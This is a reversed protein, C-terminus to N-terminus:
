TNRIHQKAKEYKELQYIYGIAIALYLFNLNGPHSITNCFLFACCIAWWMLRLNWSSLQFGYFGLAIFFGIFFFLGILGYDCLVEIFGCHPARSVGIYSNIYSTGTGTGGGFLKTSFNAEEFGMYATRRLEGRGSDLEGGHEEITEQREKLRDFSHIVYNRNLYTIGLLFVIALIGYLKNKKFFTDYLDKICFLSVIAMGGVAQRKASAICLWACILFLIVKKEKKFTLMILQVIMYVSGAVNIGAIIGVRALILRQTFLRYAVFLLYVIILIKILTRIKSLKEYGFNRICFLIATCWYIISFFPNMQRMISEHSTYYAFWERLYLYLVFCVMVKFFLQRANKVSFFAFVTMYVIIGGIMLQNYINNEAQIAGSMGSIQDSTLFNIIYYLILLGFFLLIRYHYKTLFTM